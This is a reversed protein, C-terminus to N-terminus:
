HNSYLNISVDKTNSIEIKIINHIQLEKCQYSDTNLNTGGGNICEGNSFEIVQVSTDPYLMVYYTIADSKGALVKPLAKASSWQPIDNSKIQNAEVINNFIDPRNIGRLISFLRKRYRQNSVTGEMTGDWWDGKVLKKADNLLWTYVARPLKNLVEQKNLVGAGEIIIDNTKTYRRIVIDGPESIQTTTGFKGGFMRYVPKVQFDKTLVLSKYDHKSTNFNEM